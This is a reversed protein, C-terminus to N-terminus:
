NQWAKQLRQKVLVRKVWLYLTIKAAAAIDELYKKDTVKWGNLHNYTHNGVKHGAALLSEYVPFFANVNKGICFFTAKAQYKKLEESVFPTAEPHPGDDFTLYIVRESTPINWLFRPYLKKVLLPTKSFYFM